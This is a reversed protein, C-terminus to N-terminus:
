RFLRLINGDSTNLSNFERCSKHTVLFSLFKHIHSFAHKISVLAYLCKYHYNTITYFYLMFISGEHLFVIENKGKVYDSAHVM